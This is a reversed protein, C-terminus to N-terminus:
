VLHKPPRFIGDAVADPLPDSKIPAFDPRAEAAVPRFHEVVPPVATAHCACHCMAVHGADSDEAEHDDHCAHEHVGFIALLLVAGVLVACLRRLLSALAPPLWTMGGQTHMGDLRRLGPDHTCRM